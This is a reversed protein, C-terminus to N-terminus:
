SLMTTVLYGVLHHSFKFSYIFCFLWYTYYFTPIIIINGSNM